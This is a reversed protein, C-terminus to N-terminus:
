QISNIWKLLDNLCDNSIGHGFDYERYEVNLGLNKLKSETARGYEIPIKDDM